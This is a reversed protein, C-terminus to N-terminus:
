EGKRACLHKLLSAVDKAIPASEQQGSDSIAPRDCIGQNEDVIKEEDSELLVEFPEVLDHLCTTDICYNKGTIEKLSRCLPGYICGRVTGGGLLSPCRDVSKWQIQETPLLNWLANLVTRKCNKEEPCEYCYSRYIKKGAFHEVCGYTQSVPASFLMLFKSSPYQSVVRDLWELPPGWPTDFIYVVKGDEKVLEPYVAGWKVGWNEIEWELDDKSIVEEPVPVFSHFSLCLEEGSRPDAGEAKKVFEELEENNGKITLTNHCWNPM